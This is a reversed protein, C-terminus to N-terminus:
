DVNIEAIKVGNLKLKFKKIRLGNKGYDNLWQRIIATDRFCSWTSESDVDKFTLKVKEVEAVKTKTAKVLIATVDETYETTAKIIIDKLIKATIRTRKGNKDESHFFGKHIEIYDMRELKDVIMRFLRPNINNNRLNNNDLTVILESENHIARILNLILLKVIKQVKIKNSKAQHTTLLEASFVADQLMQDVVYREVIKIKKETSKKYRAGFTLFIDKQM